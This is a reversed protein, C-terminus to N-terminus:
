HGHKVAFIGGPERSKYFYEPLNRYMRERAALRWHMLQTYDETAAYVEQVAEFARRELLVEWGQWDATTQYEAWNM